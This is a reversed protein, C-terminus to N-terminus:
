ATAILVPQHFGDRIWRLSGFGSRTAARELSSRTLARYRGAHHEVTWDGDCETLVLFRVTYLPSEPGDWDHLRVVVRRPPGEILLPAAVPPREALAADYDRISVVLLGGPRLRAHMSALATAVDGDDLLHPLANDFSLVVDYAGGVGSLDRFDAVAFRVDAGLRASEARAREVAAASLDTGTVRFGELALGIAQTGIGCSCDLVDAAAPRQTRILRALAAGQRAVAEEWRDAYVLHYTPTLRDYFAEISSVGRNERAPRRPV